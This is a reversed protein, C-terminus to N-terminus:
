KKIDADKFDIEIGGTWRAIINYFIAGLGGYILGIIAYVIPFIIIAWFGLGSYIPCFEKLCFADREPTISFFAAFIGAFFGIILMALALVRACSSVRIKVIEKM